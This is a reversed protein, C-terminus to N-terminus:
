DKDSPKLYLIVTSFLTYIPMIYGLKNYQSDNILIQMKSVFVAIIFVIIHTTAFVVLSQIKIGFSSNKNFQFVINLNYFSISFLTIWNVNYKIWSYIIQWYSKEVNVRTNIYKYGVYSISIICIILVIMVIISNLFLTKDYKGGTSGNYIITYGASCMFIFASWKSVFAFLIIGVISIIIEFLVPEYKKWLESNRIKEIMFIRRDILRTVIKLELTFMCKKVIELIFVMHVKGRSPKICM